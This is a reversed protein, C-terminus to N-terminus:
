QRCSALEIMEMTEIIFFNYGMDPSTIRLNWIRYNREERKKEMINTSKTFSSSMM